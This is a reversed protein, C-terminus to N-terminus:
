YSALVFANYLVCRSGDFSGNELRKQVIKIVNFIFTAYSTEATGMMVADLPANPTIAIHLTPHGNRLPQNAFMALENANTTISPGLRILIIIKLSIPFTDESNSPYPIIHASKAQSM